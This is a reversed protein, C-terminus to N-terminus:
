YSGTYPHTQTPHQYAAPKRNSTCGGSIFVLSGFILILSAAVGGLKCIAEKAQYTTKRRQNELNSKVISAIADIAVYSPVNGQIELGHGGQGDSILRISGKVEHHELSTVSNVNLKTM